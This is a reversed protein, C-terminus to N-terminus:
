RQGRRKVGPDHRGQARLDDQEEMEIQYEFRGALTSFGMGGPTANQTVRGQMTSSSWSTRTPGANPTGNRQNGGTSPYTADPLAMARPESPAEPVPSDRADSNSSYLKSRKNTPADDDLSQAKKQGQGSQHHANGSPAVLTNDQPSRRKLQRYVILM